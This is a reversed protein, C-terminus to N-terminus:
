AAYHYVNSLASDPSESCAKTSCGNYWMCQKWWWKSGRKWHTFSTDNGPNKVVTHCLTASCPRNAQGLIAERKNKHCAARLCSSVTSSQEMKPMKICLGKKWLPRLNHHPLCALLRSLGWSWRVGEWQENVSEKCSRLLLCLKDLAGLLLIRCYCCAALMQHIPSNCGCIKNNLIEIENKDRFSGLTSQLFRWVMLKFLIIKAAGGGPLCIRPIDDNVVNVIMSGLATLRHSLSSGTWTISLLCQLTSEM